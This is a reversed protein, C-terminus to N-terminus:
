CSPQIETLEKRAAKLNFYAAKATSSYPQWSINVSDNDIMRQLFKEPVYTFLGSGDVSNSWRWDEITSGGNWRIVVDENDANYTPTKIYVETKQPSCRVVLNTTELEGISNSTTDSSEIVVFPYHIGSVPDQITSKLILPASPQSTSCSTALLALASLLLHKPRPRM